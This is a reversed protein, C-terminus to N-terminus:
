AGKAILQKVAAEDFERLDAKICVMHEAAVVIVERVGQQQQPQYHGGAHLGRCRHVGPQIM